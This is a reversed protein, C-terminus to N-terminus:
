IMLAFADRFEEVRDADCVGGLSAQLLCIQLHFSRMALPHTKMRWTRTIKM